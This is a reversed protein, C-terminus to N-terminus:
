YSLLMITQLFNVYNCSLIPCYFYINNHTHPYVWCQWGMLWRTPCCHNEVYNHQKYTTDSIFNHVCTLLTITNDSKTVGTDLM